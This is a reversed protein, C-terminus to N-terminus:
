GVPAPQRAAKTKEVDEYFSIDALIIGSVLIGDQAQIRNVVQSVIERAAESRIDAEAEELREQRIPLSVCHTKGGWCVLANFFTFQFTNRNSM